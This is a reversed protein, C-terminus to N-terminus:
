IKGLQNNDHSLTQSSKNHNPKLFTNFAGSIKIVEDTSPEFLINLVETPNIGVVDLYADVGPFFGNASLFSHAGNEEVEQNGEVYKSFNTTHRYGNSVGSNRSIGCAFRM